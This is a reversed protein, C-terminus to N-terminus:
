GPRPRAGRTGGDRGRRDIHAVNDSGKGAVPLPRSPAWRGVSLILGVALLMVLLSNRGYSMFPLPVGTLPLAGIVGGINIVAQLTVLMGCGALVYRGLPDACRRALHWCVMAFLGFLLIIFSMYELLLTHLASELTLSPGFAIAMPILVLAAWFAAFKGYHHEWLHPYFLPGTAICLLIGVFPLSWLISMDAGPLGHTEAALAPSAALLAVAGILFASVRM